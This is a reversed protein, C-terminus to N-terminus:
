TRRRAEANRREKFGTSARLAYFWNANHPPTRL